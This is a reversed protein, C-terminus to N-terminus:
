SNKLLRSSAVTADGVAEIASLYAAFYKEADAATRAAEGLMDFSHRAGRAASDVGSNDDHRRRAIEARGRATLRLVAADGGRCHAM